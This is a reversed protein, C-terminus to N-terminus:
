KAYGLLSRYTSQEAYDLSPRSELTNLVIWSKVTHPSNLMIWCLVTHPSNLVVWCLGTRPSSLM